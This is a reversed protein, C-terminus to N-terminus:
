QALVACHAADVDVFVQEGVAHNANATTCVVLRTGRVDVHVELHAGLFAVAQVTGEFVNALAQAPRERHLHLDEPRIGVTAEGAVFEAGADIRLVGIAGEGLWARPAPGDPRIRVQLLNVQGVFDAVFASGPSQYVERPSGYRVVRGDLMVALEHSLALAEAHDHTVLVTTVASERQLRRLEDTMRARLGPELNSLPEDLLLLRPPRVMARALAVRQQQGGSLETAARQAFDAMGVRELMQMAQERIRKRSIRPRVVELPFSVNQLATMHPWIAYSQFMFGVDRVAAPLDVARGADFFSRGGFAIRGSRPRLLGAIALLTSTKGCGSPGLLSLVQGERLRLGLGEVAPRTGPEAGPYEVTLNEVILMRDDTM